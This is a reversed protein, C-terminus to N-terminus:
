EVEKLIKQMSEMQERMYDLQVGVDGLKLDTHEQATIALDALRRYEDALGRYKEGSTLEAKGARRAGFARAWAVAAAGAAAAVAVGAAVPGDGKVAVVTVGIVIAVTAITMFALMIALELANRPKV